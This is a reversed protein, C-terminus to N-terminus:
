TINALLGLLACLAGLALSTKDKLAFVVVDDHMEGRGAVLWARGLWYALVGCVLWLLQPREYASVPSLPDILFLFFVLISCFGSAVGLALLTGADQARYGRGTLESRGEALMVQCESYRKVTALSFFFFMAFVLLWPSITSGSAAIGAFIRVTFLFGLTLLDLIPVRKLGYSYALTMALYVAAVGTFALPLQTLLAAVTAAIVPLALFASRLPIEGSALPRHAKSRHLRDARLDVLDNLLYSGSALLSFTFFALTVRALLGADLFHGSLLLPVFLLANKAWQQVRLARAWTTLTAAPVPFAGAVAVAPSLRARLGCGRGALVASRCHEWIVIDRHEDGAYTFAAGFRASLVDLKQRGALNTTGDSGQVIDFLEGFRAAVRAVLDHDSASVLALTRGRAKEARLWALLDTNVPLSEVDLDARRTFERKLAAKGRLLWFPILLLIWPQSFLLRAFKEYLLDTRLLTGDLDVILPDNAEPSAGAPLGNVAPRASQNM